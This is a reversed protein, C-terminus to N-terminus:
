PKELIEAVPERVLRRARLMRLILPLSYGSTVLPMHGLSSKVLGVTVAEDFWYSQVSLTSFRLIAALVTLAALAQVHRARM